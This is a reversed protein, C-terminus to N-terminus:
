FGNTERERMSLVLEVGVIARDELFKILSGIDMMASDDPEVLCDAVSDCARTSVLETVRIGEAVNVVGDEEGGAFLVIWLRVDFGSESNTATSTGVLTVGTEVPVVTFACSTPGGTTICM